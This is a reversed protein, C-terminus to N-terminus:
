FNGIRWMPVRLESEPQNKPSPEEASKYNIYYPVGHKPTVKSMVLKGKVRYEEIRTDGRQIVNVTADEPPAPATKARPQASLPPEEDVVTVEPPPPAERQLKPQAARPSQQQAPERELKVEAKAPKGASQDVNIESVPARRTAGGPASDAAQASSNFWVLAAGISAFLCKTVNANM